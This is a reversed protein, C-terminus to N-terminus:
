GKGHTAPRPHPHAHYGTLALFEMLKRDLLPQPANFQATLGEKETIHRVLGRGLIRCPESVVTFTLTFTFNQREILDGEYPQIRFSRVGLEALAYQRHDIVVHADALTTTREVQGSEATESTKNGGFISSLWSM